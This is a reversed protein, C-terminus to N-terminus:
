RIRLILLPESHTQLQCGQLCTSQTTINWNELDIHGSEYTDGIWMKFRMPSNTADCLSNLFTCTMEFPLDKMHTATETTVVKVALTQQLGQEHPKNQIDAFDHCFTTLSGVSSISPFQHKTVNERLAVKWTRINSFLPAPASASDVEPPFFILVNVKFTAM